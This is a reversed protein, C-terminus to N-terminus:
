HKHSHNSMKEAMLHRYEEKEKIKRYEGKEDEAEPIPLYIGTLEDFYVLDGARAVRRVRLSQNQIPNKDMGARQELTKLVLIGKRVLLEQKGLIAM